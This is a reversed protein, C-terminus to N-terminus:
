RFDGAQLNFHQRGEHCGFMAIRDFEKLPEESGRKRQVIKARVYRSM